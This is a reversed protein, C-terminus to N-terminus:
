RHSGHQIRTLKVAFHLPLWDQIEALAIGTLAEIRTLRQRLTNRHLGLHEATLTRNGRSELYADLTDSVVVEPVPVASGALARLVRAQRLMDNRGVPREAPPVAKVVYRRAGVAVAYTLGSHGGVMTELPGVRQGPFADAVRDTLEPMVSATM